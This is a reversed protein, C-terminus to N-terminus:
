KGLAKRLLRGCFPDLPEIISSININEELWQIGPTLRFCANLVGDLLSQDAISNKIYLEAAKAVITGFLEKDKQTGHMACSRMIKVVRHTVAEGLSPIQYENAIAFVGFLYDIREDASVGSPQPDLPSGYIFRLMAYVVVDSHGEIHYEPQTAIPFQGNFATNFVGSAGKLVVKHAHVRENDGFRLIIDSDSKDNYSANLYPYRVLVDASPQAPPFFLSGTRHSSPQAPPSFLSGSPSFLSGSSSFLSGPPSFLSGSPSFLNGPPGFLSTTRRSLPAPANASPQSPPSFLSMTRHGFLPPAANASPQAPLGLLSM